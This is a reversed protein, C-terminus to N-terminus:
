ERSAPSGAPPCVQQLGHVVALREKHIKGALQWYEQGMAALNDLQNRSIRLQAQLWIALDSAQLAATHRDCTMHVPCLANGAQQQM